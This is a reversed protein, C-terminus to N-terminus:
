LMMSSDHGQMAEEAVTVMAKLKGISSEESMKHKQRLLFHHMFLRLGDRLPQLKPYSAIRSFVAKSADKPTHLLLELLVQRLWHMMPKNMEAFEIVKLVSLVLSKTVLLHVVLKALNSSQIATQQDMVKFKDWLAFQFAIQFKRDYQCFKGALYAYYPNFAKEQICCDLIVYVIEREQSVKLNLHLLKNFADIYDESTVIICFINRRVDTNMRQKRSLELIKGGVPNTSVSDQKKESQSQLTQQGVWASGVIWWRGKEEASLLDNLSIRLQGEQSSHDKLLARLIKKLHEMHTPDYNPIKRFNNNRLASITELMFKVRTHDKFKDKVETAKSQIQLIVEKLSVSDDRRLSMGVNKLLLLIMEIDRETFGEVLKKIIDYILVCHIVKFNYLHAFLLVVNDCEKGEGYNDNQQYVDNLKKALNQLFHAGVESGVKSHLLSLLMMHEMALREPTATHSICVEFILSSLTESMDNRSHKLYLEEIQTCISQMNSESLRNLYGKMQRRLRDLKEKNDDRAMMKARQQPPVYTEGATKEEGSIVRGYIDYKVEEKKRKRKKKGPTEVVPDENTEIAIDSNDSEDDDTSKNQHGEADDTRTRKKHVNQKDQDGENIAKRKKRIGNDHITELDQKTRVNDDSEYENESGDSNHDNVIFEEEEGEEGDEEYDTGDDDEREGDGGEGEWEKEEGDEEEDDNEGGSRQVSNDEDIMNKAQKRSKGITSEKLSNSKKKGFVAVAIEDDSLDQDSNSEEEDFINGQDYDILSARNESDCFELLDDLGDDRFATALKKRKDLKLKKELKHIVQDEKENDAILKELKTQEITKAKGKNTENTKSTKTASGKKKKKKKVQDGQSKTSLEVGTDKLNSQNQGSKKKTLFEFKKAKKLKRAEKRRQKRSKGLKTSFLSGEHDGVTGQKESWKEVESSVKKLHSRGKKKKDQKRKM